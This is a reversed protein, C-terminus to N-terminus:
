WATAGGMSWVGEALSIGLGSDDDTGTEGEAELFGIGSPDTVVAVSSGRGGMLARKLTVLYMYMMVTLGIRCDWFDRTYQVAMKSNNNYYGPWVALSM